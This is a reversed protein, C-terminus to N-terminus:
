VHGQRPRKVRPLQRVWKPKDSVDAEDFAPSKPFGQDRYNDAYKPETYTPNHPSNFAVYAFWPFGKANRM